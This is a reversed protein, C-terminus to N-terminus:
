ERFLLCGSVKVQQEVAQALWGARVRGGGGALVDSDDESRRGGSVAQRGDLQAQAQARQAQGSGRGEDCAESACEEDRKGTM